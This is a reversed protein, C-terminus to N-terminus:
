LDIFFMSNIFFNFSIKKFDRRNKKSLKSTM